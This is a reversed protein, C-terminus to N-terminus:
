LTKREARFEQMVHAVWPGEVIGSASEDALTLTLVRQGDHVHLSAGVVYRTNVWHDCTPLFIKSGCGGPLAKLDKALPRSRASEGDRDRALDLAAAASKRAASVNGFFADWLAPGIEFLAKKGGQGPEHNLDAARQAMSKAEKL